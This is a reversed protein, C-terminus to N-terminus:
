CVTSCRSSRHTTSITITSKAASMRWGGMVKSDKNANENLLAVNSQEVLGRIEQNLRGRLERSVDRDHRYEIYTRALQKYPGSMLQNEVAQQIEHIDVRPRNEMQQAVVRAVTACYDADVVEAALAAREIAQKILMEDFSVQCGDRKIVVPKM